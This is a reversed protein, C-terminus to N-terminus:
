RLSVGGPTGLNLDHTVHMLLPRAEVGARQRQRQRLDNPSEELPVMLWGSENCIECAFDDCHHLFLNLQFSKCHWAALRIPSRSRVM